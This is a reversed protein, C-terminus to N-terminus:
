GLDYGPWTDVPSWPPSAARSCWADCGAMGNGVNFGALAPEIGLGAGHIVMETPKRTPKGRPRTSPDLFGPRRSVLTLLFFPRRLALRMADFVREGSM